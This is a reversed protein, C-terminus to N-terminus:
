NKIRKFIATNVGVIIRDNIRKIEEDNLKAKEAFLKIASRGIIAQKQPMLRPTKDETYYFIILRCNSERLRQGILEWWVNDTDGISSGFLCILNANSILRKCKTDIEHKQVQNCTPKVLTELIDQNERFDENVIQSIDNVGLVM